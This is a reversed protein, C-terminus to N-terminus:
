CLATIDFDTKESILEGIMIGCSIMLILALIFILISPRNFLKTIRLAGIRGTAGGAMGVMFLISGATIDFDNLILHHIINNTSSILSMLSTTASSVQPIIKMSLLYPGFLEGGGIGLM